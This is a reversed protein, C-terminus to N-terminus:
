LFFCFYNVNLNIIGGFLKIGDFLGNLLYTQSSLRILNLNKNSNIPIKLSCIRASMAYCLFYPTTLNADIINIYMVYFPKIYTYM